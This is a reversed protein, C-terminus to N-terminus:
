KNLLQNLIEKINSERVDINGYPIINNAYLYIISNLWNNNINFIYAKCILEFDDSIYSAIESDESINCSKIFVEKRIEDILKLNDNSIELKELSNYLEIWKSDFIDNNRLNLVDDLNYNDFLEKTIICNNKIKELLKHLM